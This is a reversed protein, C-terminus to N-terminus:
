RLEFGEWACSEFLDFASQWYTPFYWGFNNITRFTPKQATTNKSQTNIKIIISETGILYLQSIVEM